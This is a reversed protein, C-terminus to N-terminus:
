KKRKLEEMKNKRKESFHTIYADDMGSVIRLVFSRHEAEYIGLEDLLVFVDSLSVPNPM